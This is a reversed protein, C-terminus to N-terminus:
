AESENPPSMSPTWVPAGETRFLGRNVMHTNGPWRVAPGNTLGAADGNGATAASGFACYAAKAPDAMPDITIPGVRTLAKDQCLFTVDAMRSTLLRHTALVIVRNRCHRVVKALLRAETALDINSTAEDLLIVPTGRLITRALVIRQRQGASVQHGGEGLPTDFRQPLEAIFRDLECLSAIEEVEDRTRPLGAALNDFLTGTVIPTDHWAAAVLSRVEELSLSAIDKGGISIRGESPSNFGLILRFLTSKGSGSEGIIVNFSEARFAASANEFVALDGRYGFSLREIHVYETPAAEAATRHDGVQWRAGEPRLDFLDCIAECAVIAEQIGALGSVIDTLPNLVLNLYSIFALLSGLSLTQALVMHWGIWTCAGLCLTKVGSILMSYRRNARHTRAQLHAFEEVVSNHRDLCYKEMSMAKTSMVHSVAATQIASLANSSQSQAKTNRYNETSQRDALCVIIPAVILVLVALRPASLFLLPPIVVFYLVNATLTQWCSILSGFSSRIAHFRGCIAGTGYDEFYQVPLHQLHEFLRATIGIHMRRLLTSRLQAQLNKLLINIALSLVTAAVLVDTLWANRTPYAEDILTRSLYPGALGFVQILAGVGIMTLISRRYFRLYPWLRRVVRLQQRRATVASRGKGMWRPRSM